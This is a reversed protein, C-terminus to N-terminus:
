IISQNLIHSQRERLGICFALERQWDVYLAITYLFRITANKSRPNRFKMFGFQRVEMLEIAM